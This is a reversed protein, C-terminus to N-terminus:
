ACKLTELLPRWFTKLIPPGIDKRYSYVMEVPCLPTAELPPRLPASRSPLLCSSSDAAAVNASKRCKGSIQIVRDRRTLMAQESIDQLGLM